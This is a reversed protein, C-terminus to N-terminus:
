SRRKKPMAAIEDLLADIRRDIEPRARAYDDNVSPTAAWDRTPRAALKPPLPNFVVVIDAKRLDAPALKRLPDRAPDIGDAAMGTRATASLHEAPTIGRSFAIAKIGRAGARRWFLERALASKVTGYQCVFLVRTPAPEANAVSGSLLGAFAVAILMRSALGLRTSTSPPFRHPKSFPM